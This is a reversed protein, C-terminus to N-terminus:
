GPAYCLPLCKSSRQKQIRLESKINSSIPQFWQLHLFFLLFKELSLVNDQVLLIFASGLLIQKVQRCFGVSSVHYTVSFNAKAFKGCEKSCQFCTRKCYISPFVDLVSQLIVFPLEQSFRLLCFHQHWRSDVQTRVQIFGCMLQYHHIQMEVDSRSVLDARLSQLYIGEM